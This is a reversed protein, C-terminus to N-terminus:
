SIKKLVEEVANHLSIAASEPINMESNQFATLVKNLNFKKQQVCFMWKKNHLYKGLYEQESQGPTPVLIANKKIKVLDMITSYGSRSIIMESENMLGNLQEAPLHNYIKIGEQIYPVPTENGPLGRVLITHMKCNRLQVLLINEFRTREPEPGSILILLSNKVVMKEIPEFRSLIGIYSVPFPPHVPPHSLTGALSIDGNLDPVWCSSFKSIFKNNWKLIQKDILRGASRGLGLGSQIFLQHTVFVCLLNKHYLGFRNDSIVLDIKRDKVFAELWKHERKIQKLMDPIRFILAWKLLFGPKYSIEYGPIEVYELLPFEMKLLTKQSGSTAIIVQAGQQIFEKIIPICRTAHGLGWDLPSILVFFPAKHHM